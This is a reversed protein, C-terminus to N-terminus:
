KEMGIKIIFYWNDKIKEVIFINNGSGTEKYEDYIYINKGDLFDDECYLLYWYQGGLM